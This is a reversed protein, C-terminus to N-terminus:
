LLDNLAHVEVHIVHSQLHILELLEQAGEIQPGYGHCPMHRIHICFGALTYMAQQLM